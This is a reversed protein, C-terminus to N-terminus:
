GYSDIMIEGLNPLINSVEKGQQEYIKSIIANITATSLTLSFYQPHIMAQLFAWDHLSLRSAVTGSAAMAESDIEEGTDYLGAIIGDIMAGLGLEGLYIKGTEGLITSADIYVNDNALYIAVIPQEIIEGNKNYQVVELALETAGFNNLDIYAGLRVQAAPYEESGMNDTINLRLSSDSMDTSPSVLGFVLSLLESLDIVNDEEGIKASGYYSIDMAMTLNLTSKTIDAYDVIKKGDVDVYEGNETQAVKLTDNNTYVGLDYMNFNLSLDGILLYDGATTVDYTARDTAVKNGSLKEYTDVPLYRNGDTGNAAYREVRAVALDEATLQVFGGKGDANLTFSNANKKLDGNEDAIYQGNRLAYRQGTFGAEAVEFESFVKEFTTGDANLVYRDGTWVSNAYEVLAYKDSSVMIHTGNADVVYEEDELSFKVGDYAYKGVEEYSEYGVVFGLNVGISPSGGGLNIVLGSTDAGETIELKPLYDAGDFNEALMGVLDVLLNYKLGVAIIDHGFLVQGLVMEVIGFIDEPIIGTNSDGSEVGLTDLALTDASTLAE